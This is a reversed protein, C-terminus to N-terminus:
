GKPGTETDTPTSDNLVFEAVLEPSELPFFHTRDALHHERADAFEDVLGPWTPSYSFDMLNRDPPTLKARLLLVPVRIARVSEYVESSIRSSMYVSAEIRPPCALVFGETEPDPLLGYQCYDRLVEPAFVSYPARGKFREFMAEPSAFLNKRRATPHDIDGFADTYANHAGYVDPAQIVPDMLLLRQFRDPLAAAAETLAYGGMSHGVGIVDRLDLERVFATLDRGFVSWDSIEVKESRGHGRQDLALVHRDGLQAIARDWVRAHFGTAHAFLVPASRGQFESGWEFFALEIGNVRVRREVPQPAGSM